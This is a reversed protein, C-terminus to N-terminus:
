NFILHTLFKSSKVQSYVRILLNINTNMRTRTYSLLATTYAGPIYLYKYFVSAFFALVATVTLDGLSGAVPTAVNDPNIRLKRLVVIVTVMVVGEVDLASIYLYEFAASTIIFALHFLDFEYDYSHLCYARLAFLVSHTRLSSLTRAHAHLRLPLTSARVAALVLAFAKRPPPAGLVFAAVAATCTASATLFLADFLTYPWAGGRAIYGLVVAVTSALMSLCIAQAELLALNGGVM